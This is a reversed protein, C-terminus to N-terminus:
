RYAETLAGSLTRILLTNYSALFGSYQYLVEALLIIAVFSQDRTGSVLHRLDEWVKGRM